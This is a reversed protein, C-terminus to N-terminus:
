SRKPNRPLRNTSTNGTSRIMKPNQTQTFRKPNFETGFKVKEIQEHPYRGKSVLGAEHKNLGKVMAFADQYNRAMGQKMIDRIAIFTHSGYNPASVQDRTLNFESVGRAQYVDLNKVMDFINQRSKNPFNNNLISIAILTFEGFKEAEEKTLNYNLVGTIQIANLGEIKISFLDKYNKTSDRTKLTDLCSLSHRGFNIAKVQNITLNFSYVGEIQVKNLEGQHYDYYYLMEENDFM